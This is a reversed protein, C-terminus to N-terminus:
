MKIFGGHDTLGLLWNILFIAAALILVVQVVKNFPEPLAIKQVVYWLIWFVVAIIILYLLSNILGSGTLAAIIISTTM